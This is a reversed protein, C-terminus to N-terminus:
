SNDSSDPRIHKDYEKVYDIQNDNLGYLEQLLDDLENIKDKVIKNNFEGKRGKDPNFVSNLANCVKKSLKKIESKRNSIKEESPM